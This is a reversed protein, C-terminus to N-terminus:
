EKNSSIEEYAERVLKMGMKALSEARPKTKAEAFIRFIPETGSPRFLVWGDPYRLKVGDLTEKNVDPPVMTAVQGLLKEKYENECQIKDKVQVYTPFQKDLEELSKDEQALLDLITLTTLMGERTWSWGNYIVGGNEEGGILANVRKMMSVINPEGVRTLVLKASLIEAVDRIIDSTAVQTVIKRDHTKIGQLRHYAALAFTRDGMLYRGKHTIFVTRDADGDWAIGLNARGQRVHQKLKSLNKETPEPPRDKFFGDPTCHLLEVQVGAQRLLNPVIVSAAGGGCDAIVQFQKRQIRELDVQQLVQQIYYPSFSETNVLHGCQKWQVCIKSKSFFIKEVQEEMESTLAAGDKGWLKIGNYQPPNHSATIMVGANCDMRPIAFSLVPTPILGLLRVNCGGAMLGSSIAHSLMESSTRPDWGIVVTGVRNLYKAFALGINHAIEPTLTENTIGRFGQTGFLRKM